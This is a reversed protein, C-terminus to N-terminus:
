WGDANFEIKLSVRGARGGSDVSDLRSVTNLSTVLNKYADSYFKFDMATMQVPNGEEDFAFNNTMNALAVDMADMIKISQDLRRGDLKLMVQNRRAELKQKEENLQTLSMVEVKEVPLLEIEQNELGASEQIMSALELEKPQAKKPRGRPM